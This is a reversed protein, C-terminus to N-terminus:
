LGARVPLVARQDGRLFLRASGLGRCLARGCPQLLRDGGAGRGLRAVHAQRCFFLSYDSRLVTVEMEAQRTMEEYLARAERGGPPLANLYVAARRGRWLLSDFRFRGNRWGQYWQSGNYTDEIAGTLLPFPDDSRVRLM